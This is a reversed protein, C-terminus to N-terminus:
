RVVRGQGDVLDAEQGTRRTGVAGRREVPHSYASLVPREVWRWSAAAVLLSGLGAAARAPLGADPMFFLVPVHWLYWGYSVRGLARLARAELWRVGTLCAAVLAVSAAAHLPGMSVSVDPGLRDWLPLSSVVLVALGTAAWWPPGSRWGRREVVALLCGALLAYAVTDTGSYVRVHAEHTGDLLWWRLLVSGAIGAALAPVLARPHRLLALLGLPWALYFQEEVSLSWTHNLPGLGGAMPSIWNACYSLAALSVAAARDVRGGTVAVYGILATLMVLLPPLLRAARRLYFAGLRVRGTADHETLLLRTILFGSLVFFLTVGVPAGGEVGPMGVHGAVVLLIAVGRLGDLAPVRGGVGM